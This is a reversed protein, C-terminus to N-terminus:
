KTRLWNKYNWALLNEYKALTSKCGDAITTQVAIYLRNSVPRRGLSDVVSTVIAVSSCIPTNSACIAESWATVKKAGDNRNIFLM